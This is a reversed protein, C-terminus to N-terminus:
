RANECGVWERADFWQAIGRLRVCMGGDRSYCDVVGEVGSLVNRVPTGGPASCPPGSPAALEVVEDRECELDGGADLRVGLLGARQVQAM